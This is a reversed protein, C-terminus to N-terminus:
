LAPLFVGTYTAKHITVAAMVMYDETAQKPLLGM